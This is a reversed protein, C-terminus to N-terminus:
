GSLEKRQVAKAALGGAEVWYLPFRHSLNCLIKQPISHHPPAIFYSTVAATASRLRFSVSFLQRGFGSKIGPRTRQVASKNSGMGMREELGIWCVEDETGCRLGSRRGLRIIYCCLPQKPTIVLKKDRRWCTCGTKINVIM